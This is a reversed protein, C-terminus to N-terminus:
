RSKYMGPVHQAIPQTTGTPGHQRVFGTGHYNLPRFYHSTGASKREWEKIHIGERKLQDTIAPKLFNDQYQANDNRMYRRIPEEVEYSWNCKKAFYVADAATEFTIPPNSQYPDANSTWGMLPNVWRESNTGDEYFYIRWISEPNLPAQKSSKHSQRIVVHRRNGDSKTHFRSDSTDLAQLEQLNEPLVPAPLFKKEADENYYVLHKDIKRMANRKETIPSLATEEVAAKPPAPAPAKPAPAPAAPPSATAAPAAAAPPAPPKSTSSSSFHNGNYGVVVPVVAARYSLLGNNVM